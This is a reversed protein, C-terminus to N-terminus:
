FWNSQCPNEHSGMKIKPFCFAPIAHFPSNSSIERDPGQLSCSAEQSTEEDLTQSSHSAEQSTKLKKKKKESKKM